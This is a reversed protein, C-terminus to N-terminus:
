ASAPKPDDKVAEVSKFISAAISLLVRVPLKAMGEVTVPLADGKRDTCDWSVVITSLAQRVKDEDSSKRLEAIEGYTPEYFKVTWGYDPIAVEKILYTM